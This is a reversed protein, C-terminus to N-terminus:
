YIYAMCEIPRVWAPRMEAVREYYDIAEDFNNGNCLINAYGMVVAYNEPYDDM